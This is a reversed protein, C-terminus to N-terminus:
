GSRMFGSSIFMSPKLGVSLLNEGECVDFFSAEGKRILTKVGDLDGTRALRFIQSNVDRENWTRFCLDWGGHSHVQAIEWVTSCFWAPLKFKYRFTKEREYITDRSRAKKRIEGGEFPSASDDFGEIRRRGDTMKQVALDIQHQLGIQYAELTQQLAVIQDSHKTSSLQQAKWRREREEAHYMEVALHLAARARDLDALLDKLESERFTAYLRATFNAQKIKRDLNETVKEIKAVHLRCQQICQKMIDAGHGEAQRHRELHELSMSMIHIESAIERLTDPAGKMSHYLKMLKVSSEALQISLSMLGAGGAVVGLM